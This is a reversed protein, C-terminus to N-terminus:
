SEGMSPMAMGPGLPMGQAPSAAVMGGGLPGMTGAPMGPGARMSGGLSPDQKLSPPLTRPLDFGHLKKQILHMAISFERKDM